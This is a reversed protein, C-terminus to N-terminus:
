KALLEPSIRRPKALDMLNNDGIFIDKEYQEVREIIQDCEKLLKSKIEAAKLKDTDGKVDVVEEYIAKQYQYFTQLNSILATWKLDAMLKCFDIIMNIVDEDKLEFLRENVLKKKDAPYGVFAATEVQRKEYSSFNRVFPSNKDYMLLIYRVLEPRDKKKYNKFSELRKLDEFHHVPDEGEKLLSINYKMKAFDNEKFVTTM